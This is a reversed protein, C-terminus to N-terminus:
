GVVVVWVEAAVQVGATSNKVWQVMAPVRLFFGQSKLKKLPIRNVSIKNQFFIGVLILSLIVLLIIIAIIIIIFKPPNFLM